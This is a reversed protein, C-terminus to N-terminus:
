LTLYIGQDFQNSRGSPTLVMALCFPSPCLESKFFNRIYVTNPGRIRQKTNEGLTM